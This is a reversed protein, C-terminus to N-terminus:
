NEGGMDSDDALNLFQHYGMKLLNELANVAFVKASPNDSKLGWKLLTEACDDRIFPRPHKKVCAILRDFCEMVLLPERDLLDVLSELEMYISSADSKPAILVKLYARLRWEPTLCEARLWFAFEELESPEGQAVRYEYFSFIRGKFAEDLKSTEKMLLRGVHEFLNKWHKKDFSSRGYFRELLSEEGTLPFLGWVYYIMLHQGITDILDSSFSTNGELKRLHELAFEFEDRIFDFERKWPNNYHLFPVFAARWKELDEHVFFREKNERVFTPIVRLFEFFYLGLISYEPLTIPFMGSSFRQELLDAIEGLDADQDNERVWRGYKSINELARSRTRNIADTLYDRENSFVSHEGDLQWDPELCIKELLKFFRARFTTPVQSEKKFCVEVFDVVARRSSSWSPRDSSEDDRHVAHDPEVDPKELVWEAFRLWLEVHELKGQEVQGKAGELIARVFVPRRIQDRREFWFNLREPNPVIHACFVEQFVNALAGVNIEEFKDEYDSRVEDWTNIYTLIEMDSKDALEDPKIPSRSSVFGAKSKRYPLYDDDNLSFTKKLQEYYEKAEGCLVGSFPYLQQFHFSSQERVWSEESFQEKTWKKWEDLSPGSLIAEIISGLQGPDLIATGFHECAKRAMIQFEYPHRRTAYTEFGLLEAQIWPLTQESLFMGYLHWRLRKFIRWRQVRLLEDLEAISEPRLEFVKECAFVTTTALIEKSDPHDPVENLKPLWTESGDYDSQKELEASFHSLDIAKALSEVLLHTLDLSGTAAMSSVHEKLFQEYQWHEMRPEPHLFRYFHEPDAKRESEKQEYESDPRFQVSKNLVQLGDLCSEVSGGIWHSVVKWIMEPSIWIAPLDLYNLVRRKLKGSLEPPEVKSAISCITSLVRPNNTCPMTRILRVVEEPHSTTIKALYALPWFVPNRFHETGAFDEETVRFIGHQELFPLWSPNKLNQFFFLYNSGSKRVLRLADNAMEETVSPEVLLREIQRQDSVSQPLLWNLIFEDFRKLTGEFQQSITADDSCGHHAFGEVDDWIGHFETVRQASIENQHQHHLPDTKKISKFIGEKRGPKKGSPSPEIGGLMWSM